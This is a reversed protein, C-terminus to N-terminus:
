VDIRGISSDKAIRYIFPALEAEATAEMRGRAKELISVTADAGLNATVVVFVRLGANLWAEKEAPRYRIRADQTVFVWGSRAVVPFLDVDKTNQPFHDDHLEISWGSARLAM